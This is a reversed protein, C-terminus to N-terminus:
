TEVDSSASPFTLKFTTGKGLTSQVTIKGRHAQVIENVISLGLGTGESESKTTFFPDFIQPLIHAPIGVGQDVVRVILESAQADHETAITLTGSSIKMAQAANICLNVFIQTLAGHAGLVHPLPSNLALNVQIQRNVLEHDCFILAKRIVQHLDVAAPVQLTPRAYAVLDRTFELIRQASDSIRNLREVDASDGQNRQLKDKLYGAYSTIATLPAALEHVVGTVVQGLSALKETQILRQKLNAILRASSPPLELSPPPESEPPPVGSAKDLDLIQAAGVYSMTEYKTIKGIKKVIEAMRESESVIVKAARSQPSDDETIYRKLLEANGIVSTLPQNLEHAATGALEALAKDKERERLDQQARALEAEMRLSERIDTFIGVSGVPQDMDFILAASLKVPVTAGSAHLMDVRYEELRNPGGHEPDRIAQMVQRAIGPPYLLEVNMKGIVDGPSHGFTRSAARNYLLVRGAMDASVIADVSSEIVRELFEKTHRLEAETRREATVDRFTCLVAREARLVSSFNVSIVKEGGEPTRVNIDVGQPYVGARFSEMLQEVHQMERAGLLDQIRSTRVDEETAGIIKGAKPNAFLIHGAHDAVVMGDAASEFFDAYRQFVKMRREAYVRAQADQESASRLSQLIRANRIAIATANALTHVLAMRDGLFAAQRRARLFIVGLPQGEHLLPALALSRFAIASDQRIAALLETNRVDEIVLPLRTNLVERIEPYKELQIPLDRLSEDDSTAVVYGLNGSEHVLVISCRDVDVIEAVRRVVTFLIDRIDLSSALAQTLQVVTRLDRESREVREVYRRVRLQSQLRAVLAPLSTPRRIYDDAGAALARAVSQDDHVEAAVVVPVESLDSSNRIDRLLTLGHEASEGMELLVVSPRQERMVRLAEDLPTACVVGLGTERLTAVTCQGRDTNDDVILIAEAQAV